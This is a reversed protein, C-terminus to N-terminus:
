LSEPAVRAPAHFLPVGSCYSAAVIARGFSEATHASASLMELDRRTVQEVAM